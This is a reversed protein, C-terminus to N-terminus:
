IKNRKNPVKKVEKTEELLDMFLLGKEEKTNYEDQNMIELRAGQEFTIFYSSFGKANKYIENSKGDFYTVYYEKSKEIDSTYLAAHVMYSKM